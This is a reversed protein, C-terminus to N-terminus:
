ISPIEQPGAGQGKKPFLPFGLLCDAPFDSISFSHDTRERLPLSIYEDTKHESISIELKVAVSASPQLYFLRLPSLLIHEPQVTLERM